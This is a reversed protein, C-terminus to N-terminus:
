QQFGDPKTANTLRCLVHYPYNHKKWFLGIHGSKLIKDFLKYNLYKFEVFSIGFNSQFLINWFSNIILNFSKM